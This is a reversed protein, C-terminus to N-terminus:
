TKQRANISWLIANFLCFLPKSENLSRLFESPISPKFGCTKEVDKKESFKRRILNAFAKAIDEERFGDGNLTAKTYTLPSVDSSHLVNKNGNKHDLLKEKM